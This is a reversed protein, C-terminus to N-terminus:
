HGAAETGVHTPDPLKEVSTWEKYVALMDRDTDYVYLLGADASLTVQGAEYVVSGMVRSTVRYRGPGM